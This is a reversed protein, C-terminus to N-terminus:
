SETFLNLYDRITYEPRSKIIRLKLEMFNLYADLARRYDNSKEYYEAKKLWGRLEMDEKTRKMWESAAKEESSIIREITKRIDGTM